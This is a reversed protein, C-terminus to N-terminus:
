LVGVLARCFAHTVAVPASARASVRVDDEEAVREAGEVM